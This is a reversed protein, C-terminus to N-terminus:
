EDEFAESEENLMLYAEDYADSDERLSDALELDHWQIHPIIEYYIAVRKDRASVHEEILKLFEIVIEQM